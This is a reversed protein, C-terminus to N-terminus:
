TTLMLKLSAWVAPEERHEPMPVFQKIANKSPQGTQKATGFFLVEVKTGVAQVIAPWWPHGKIQALM